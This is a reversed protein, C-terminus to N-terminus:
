PRTLVALRESRFLRDKLVRQAALFANLEVSVDGHLYEDLLRRVLEANGAVVFVKRRPDDSAELACLHCGNAVLLAAAALDSLRVELVGNPSAKAEM